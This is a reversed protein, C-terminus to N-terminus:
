AIGAHALAADVAARAADSAPTLPLRLEGTMKGLKELAYKAPSPSADAFLAAHLPFLRDQLARADAWREARCANQFEACLRPAVNPGIIIVPASSHAPEHRIALRHITHGEPVCWLYGPM